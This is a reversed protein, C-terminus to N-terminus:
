RFHSKLKLFYKEFFEYSITSFVVAIVAATLPFLWWYAASDTPLRAYDIWIKQSFRVAPIHFVYIGFSIKGLYKLAANEFPFVSYEAIACAIIGISMFGNVIQEYNKHIPPYYHNGFLFMAMPTLVAIQLIRSARKSSPYQPTLFGSRLLWALLAGSGFQFFRNATFNYQFEYFMSFWNKPPLDLAFGISVFVLIAALLHRRFLWLTPAWILYFQEEVGLSWFHGAQFPNGLHLFAQFNISFTALFALNGLLVETTQVTPPYGIWPGFYFSQTTGLLIWVIGFGFYLPWIRLFRRYYFHRINITGTTELEKLLLFSILFGSLVFFFDVGFSSLKDAFPTYFHIHKGEYLVAQCHGLIVFAAAFFRLGDLNKFYVTSKSHNISKM